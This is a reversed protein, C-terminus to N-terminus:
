IKLVWLTGTNRDTFFIHTGDENMRPDYVDFSVDSEGPKLLPEATAAVPDIVYWQDNFSTEGRYWADLIPGAPIREPVACYLWEPIEFGWVCKEALTKVPLERTIGDVRSFLTVVGKKSTSYVVSDEKPHVVVVLGEKNGEVLDMNKSDISLAYASGPLDDAAKQSLVLVDKSRWSVRWGSIPSTFIRKPNKGFRDTYNGYTEKDTKLLQFIRPTKKDPSIAVEVVGKDLYTGVLAGFGNTSTAKQITALLSLISVGRDDSHKIVLSDEDVWYANYVNPILTNTIRQVQGGDFPLEFVNGTPREVFRLVTGSATEFQELGTSPVPSVQYLRPLEKKTTTAQTTSAVKFAKGVTSEFFGVLNERTSGTKESFEPVASGFGRAESVMSVESQRAGIFVYWGFLAGLVIVIVSLGVWRLIRTNM